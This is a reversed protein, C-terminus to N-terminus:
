NGVPTPDVQKSDTEQRLGEALTLLRQLVPSDDERRWLLVYDWYPVPDIVNRLVVGRPMSSRATSEPVLAVGMGAAVWLYIEEREISELQVHPAFGAAQFFGSFIDYLNPNLDKNWLNWDDDALARLPIDSGNALPHTQPLAVMFGERCIPTSLVQPEDVPALGFGADIERDLLSDVIRPTTPYMKLSLSIDPNRERFRPLVDALIRNAAQEIYGIQLEGIEGHVARRAVAVARDAHLVTKRAEELFIKGASTLQVQRSTRNLLRVGLERELQKIQQSLGPQAIHLRKAARGFHLEEAIAVFYRLHRLEM